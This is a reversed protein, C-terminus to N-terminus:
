SITKMRIFVNLTTHFVFTITHFLNSMKFFALKMGYPIFIDGIKEQHAM